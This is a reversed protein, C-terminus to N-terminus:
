SQNDIRKNQLIESFKESPRFILAAKEGNEEENYIICTGSTGLIDGNCRSIRKAGDNKKISVAKEESSVKVIDKILFRCVVSEKSGVKLKVAIRDENIIYTYEYYRHRIVAYIAFATVLLVALEYIGVFSKWGIWSPLSLLCFSATILLLVILFSSKKSALVESYM